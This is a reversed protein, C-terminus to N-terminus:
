IVADVFWPHPASRHPRPRIDRPSIAGRRVYEDRWKRSSQALTSNPKLRKSPKKSANARNDSLEPDALKQEFREVRERANEVADANRDGHDKAKKADAPAVALGLALAAVSV